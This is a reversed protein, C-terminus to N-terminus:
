TADGAQELLHPYEYMNGIVEWGQVESDWIAHGPPQGESNIAKLDWGCYDPSEFWYVLCIRGTKSRIFDGEWIEQGDPFEKTRKADKRGTYLMVAQYGSLYVCGDGQAKFFTGWARGESLETDTIIGHGDGFYTMKKVPESWARFKIERM